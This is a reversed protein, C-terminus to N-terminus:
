SAQAPHGQVRITSFKINLAFFVKLEYQVIDKGARSINLRTEIWIIRPTGKLGTYNHLLELHVAPSSLYLVVLVWHKNSSIGTYALIPGFIDAQCYSFLPQVTKLVDGM